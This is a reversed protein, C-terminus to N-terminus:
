QCGENQQELAPHGEVRFASYMNSLGHMGFDAMDDIKMEFLSHNSSSQASKKRFPQM